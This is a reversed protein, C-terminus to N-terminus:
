GAAGVVPAACRWSRAQDREGQGTWRARAPFACVPRTREVGAEPNNDKFKTAILQDPARGNEVWDVIAKVTPLSNPGVGGGCHLMGPALFLRYFDRTDGMKAQVRTFYDISDRATIAPDAWGHYQILKGGRKRFATLDPDYSNLIGAFKADIHAVDSDFDLKPFPYAPDAFAIDRFFDPGFGQQYAKVADASNAPVFWDGWGGKEAEGGPDLGWMIRDGTRPNVVGKYIKRVADIQPDTLCLNTQAGACRLVAPDFRCSLPDEIVGDQDGCAKLAAAELAPLKASYIMAGPAGLAQAVFAAEAMLHTWHSAPDGAVVGDFDDPFRQAEMLAERGGDSCGVFYSYKPAAKAYAAIIAKAAITTEKLARYGFDVVKQPHGLAWRGDTSDNTQHGDDTGATAFGAALGMAISTEPIRGAFGGNGVQLYRGNWAPGVPIAVEFRIDSDPTPKAAGMVRCYAARGAAPAPVVDASIIAVHDLKLTELQKCAEAARVPAATLGVLMLAGIAWGAAVSAAVTWGWGAKEGQTM